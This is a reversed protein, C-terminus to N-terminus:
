SSAMPQLQPAPSVAVALRAAHSLHRADLAGSQVWSMSNQLSHTATARERSELPLHFESAPRPDVIPSASRSRDSLHPRCWGSIRDHLISFRRHASRPGIYSEADTKLRRRKSSSDHERRSGSCGVGIAHLPYPDDLPPRRGPRLAEVRRGFFRSFVGYARGDPRAQHCQRRPIKDISRPDNSGGRLHGRGIEICPRTACPDRQKDDM